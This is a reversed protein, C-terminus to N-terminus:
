QSDSLTSELQFKGEMNEPMFVTDLDFVSDPYIDVPFSSEWLVDGINSGCSLSVSNLIPTVLTDTTDLAAEIEIWRGPASTIAAGSQTLYESWSAAALDEQTGATRTRFKVTTNTPQEALFSLQGWSGISGRDHKLRLTGSNSYRNGEVTFNDYFSEQSGSQGFTRLYVRAPGVPRNSYTRFLSWDSGNWYYTRYTSGQRTIRLKGEMAAAGYVNGYSNYSDKTGYNPSSGWVDVYVWFSGVVVKLDAPHNNDRYWPETIKYDTYIDFDGILTGNSRVNSHIWSYSTTNYPLDTRLAGNVVEAKEAFRYQPTWRDTNLAGDNFDDSLPLLTVKGPTEVTDVGNRIGSQFDIQTSWIKWSKSAATARIRLKLEGELVPIDGTHGCHTHIQVPESELYIQKDTTVSVSTEDSYAPPAGIYCLFCVAVFFLHKKLNYWQRPHVSRTFLFSLEVWIKLNNKKM